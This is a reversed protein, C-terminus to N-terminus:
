RAGARRRYERPSVGYRRRFSKGFSSLDDFGCRDAIVGIPVEPAANELLWRARDLRADRICQGVTQGRRAFMRYLAARSCGIGRAVDAATLHHDGYHREIFARAHDFLSQAYWEHPPITSDSHSDDM